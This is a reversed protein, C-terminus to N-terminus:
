DGQEEQKNNKKQDAIHLFQRMLETAYYHGFDNMRYVALVAGIALGLMMRWGDFGVSCIVAIGLVIFAAAIGRNLGYHANFVEIREVAGRTALYARIQRTIANWRSRDVGRVDEDERLMSVLRLKKNLADVEAHHLVKNDKKQIRETPNGGCCKFWAAQVCHAVPALLNGSIYSAILVIGFEGISLDKSLILQNFSPFLSALGVVLVAGPAVVAILDYLNFQKM